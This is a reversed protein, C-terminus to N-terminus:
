RKTWCGLYNDYGNAPSPEIIEDVSCFNKASRSIYREDVCDLGDCFRQIMEYNYIRCRNFFITPDKKTITALFILIGGPRLVRIMENFAKIDGNLDFEEGYRGLGFTYFGGICIVADFSNSPIDLKKADCKMITENDLSSKINRIDITTVDYHGLLGITFKRWAGIDLVKEPKTNHLHFAAFECIRDAHDIPHEGGYFVPNKLVKFGRKNNEVLKYYYDYKEMFINKKDIDIDGARSAYKKNGTKKINKDARVLRLGLLSLAKNVPHM